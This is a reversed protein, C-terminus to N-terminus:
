WSPWDNSKTVLWFTIKSFLSGYRTSNTVAIFDAGFSCLSPVSFVSAFNSTNKVPLKWDEVWPSIENPITSIDSFKNLEKSELSNLKTSFVCTASKKDCLSDELGLPLKPNLTWEPWNINFLTLSLGNLSVFKLGPNKM